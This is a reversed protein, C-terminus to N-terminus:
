SRSRRLSNYKRFIEDIMHHTQESTLKPPEMRKFPVQPNLLTLSNGKRTKLRKDKLYYRWGLVRGRYPSWLMLIASPNLENISDSNEKLWVFYEYPLM